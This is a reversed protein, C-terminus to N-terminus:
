GSCDVGAFARRVGGRLERAAAAVKLLTKQSSDGKEISDLGARAEGVSVELADRRRRKLEDLADGTQELTGSIEAGKQHLLDVSVESPKTSKLDDIQRVLRRQAACLRATADAGGGADGGGCAALGLVTGLALAAVLTYAIAKASTM